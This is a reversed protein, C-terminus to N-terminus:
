KPLRDLCRRCSKQMASRFAKPIGAKEILQELGKRGGERILTRANEPPTKTLVSMASEFLNIQDQELFEIVLTVSLGDEARM